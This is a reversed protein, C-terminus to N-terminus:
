RESGRNKDEQRLFFDAYGLYQECKRILAKEGIREALLLSQQFRSASDKHYGDYFLKRGEEFIATALQGSKGRAELVSVLVSAWERAAEVDDIGRMWYILNQCLSAQATETELGAEQLAVLIQYRAFGYAM